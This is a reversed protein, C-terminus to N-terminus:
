LAASTLGVRHKINWVTIVHSSFTLTAPWSVANIGSLQQSLQLMVAVLVPQRYVPARLLEFITVKKEASMQRSEEKMETMDESVNETGRLKVLVAFHTDHIFRSISVYIM